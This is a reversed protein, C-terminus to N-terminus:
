LCSWFGLFVVQSRQFEKTEPLNRAPIPQSPFSPNSYFMGLGFHSKDKYVPGLVRSLLVWSEGPSASSNGAHRMGVPIPKPHSPPLQARETGVKGGLEKGSGEPIGKDGFGAKAKARSDLDPHLPASQSLPHTFGPAPLPLPDQSPLRSNKGRSCIERM